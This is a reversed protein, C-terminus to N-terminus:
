YSEKNSKIAAYNEHLHFVKVFVCIVKNIIKDSQERERDLQKLAQHVDSFLKLFLSIHIKVSEHITFFFCWYSRQRVDTLTVLFDKRTKEDRQHALLDPLARTKHSQPM